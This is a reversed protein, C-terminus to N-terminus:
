LRWNSFQGEGIIRHNCIALCRGLRKRTDQPHVIGDDWLRATAYLASNQDTFQQQVPEAIADLEKDSLEPNACAKITKLVDAAQEAGMVGIHSTPWSFLFDPDYARGCLAYNGAGYSAGIILTIKPVTACAVASVLLAGHKAIGNAEVKSGVMFGAVNQLFIIPKKRQCCLQIFHSAKLASESFLIGKCAILGAEFGEIEAFGCILSNGFNPKFETFSAADVLGDILKKINFPQRTDDPILQSLEQSKVTPESYTKPACSRQAPYHRIIDRALILADRDDEAIYDVLGSHKAHTNAGGLTEADIDEGTAAKVLPPGALFIHGQSRVLITEDSMAPIYAGGATCSGFVIALQPIQLASLQAQNFFIRGFHNKDPFVADQYNLNAGGSDVLYICPLKQKQAIEQARLHKKVTLPFYCGGKVRCDNAILVCDRNKITAIGTIIGAGGGDISELEPYVNFAALTSFELLETDADILLKIRERANLKPTSSPTLQTRSRELKQWQSIIDASKSM